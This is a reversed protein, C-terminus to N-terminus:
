PKLIDDLGDLDDALTTSPAKGKGKGKPVVVAEVEVVNALEDSGEPTLIFQGNRYMGVLVRNLLLDGFVCEAGRSILEKDSM